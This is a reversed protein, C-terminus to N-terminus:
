LRSRPVLPFPRFSRMIQCQFPVHYYFQCISRHISNKKGQTHSQSRQQILQPQSPRRQGQQFMLRGYPDEYNERGARSAEFNDRRRGGEIYDGGGGLRRVEGYDGGSGRGGRDEFDARGWQQQQPLPAVSLPPPPPRGGGDSSRGEGGRPQRAYPPPGDARNYHSHSMEHRPPSVTRYGAPMNTGSPLGTQHHGSAQSLHGSGQSGLSPQRGHM